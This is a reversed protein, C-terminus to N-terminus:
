GASGWRMDAPGGDEISRVPFARSSSGGHSGAPMVRFPTNWGRSGSPAVRFYLNGGDAYLGPQKLHPVKLASLRESTKAM